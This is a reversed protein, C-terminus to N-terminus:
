TWKILKIHLNYAIELPLWMDHNQERSREYIFMLSVIMVIVRKKTNSVTFLCEGTNMSQVTLQIEDLWEVGPTGVRSGGWPVEGCCGCLSFSDSVLSNLESTTENKEAILWFNPGKGNCLFLWDYLCLILRQIFDLVEM